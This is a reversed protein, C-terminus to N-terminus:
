NPTVHYVGYGYLGHRLHFRLLLHVIVEETLNNREIVLMAEKFMNQQLYCDIAENYYGIREFCKASKETEKLIKYM